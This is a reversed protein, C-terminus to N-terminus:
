WVSFPPPSAWADAIVARGGGVPHLIELNVGRGFLM